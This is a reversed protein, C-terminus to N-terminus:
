TRTRFVHAVQDETAFEGADAEAVGRQVATRFDGDWDLFTEIAESAMAEPTSGSAKAAAALRAALTPDLSLRADDAM